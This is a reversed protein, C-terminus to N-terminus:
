ETGVTSTGGVSPGLSDAGADSLLQDIVDCGARGNVAQGGVLEQWEDGKSATLTGVPRWQHGLVDLGARPQRPQEQPRFDADVARGDRHAATPM